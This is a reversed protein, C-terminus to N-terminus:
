FGPDTVQGDVVVMTVMVTVVVTVKLLQVFMASVLIWDTRLLSELSIRKEPDTQLLSAIVQKASASVDNWIPDDFTYDCEQIKCILEAEPLDGFVDFPHYGSLSLL